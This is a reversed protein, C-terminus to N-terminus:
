FEFRNQEPVNMLPTVVTEFLSQQSLTGESSKSLLIAEHPATKGVFAFLKGGPNLQNILATPISDPYSGSVFIKDFTKAPTTFYGQAGDGLILDINHPSFASLNKKAQEFIDPIIEISTLKKSLRSLLLTSYGLGTGIELVQDLPHLDLAQIARALTKPALMKQHHSLPIDTDAYALQVYPNPVFKERPTHRILELLTSNLVGWTKLQSDIMNQRAQLFNQM